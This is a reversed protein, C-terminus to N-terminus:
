PHYMFHFASERGASYRRFDMERVRELYTYMMPFSMLHAGTSLRKANERELAGLLVNVTPDLALVTEITRIPMNTPLEKKKFGLQRLLYGLNAKMTMVETPDFRYGRDGWELMKTLIADMEQNTVVRSLDRWEALLEFGPEVEMDSPAFMSWVGVGFRDLLDRNKPNLITRYRGLKLAGSSAEKYAEYIVETCFMESSDDMKMGFDYPVVHPNVTSHLRSMMAQAASRALNPDRHRYLTVRFNRDKVYEEYTRVTSGVEIHEEMLYVKRSKPDVYVLAAHSFQGDTNGLRAILASTPANGRSVLVDGSRLDRPFVMGQAGPALQLYPAAGALYPAPRNEDYPAPRVGAVATSEELYRLARLLDRIGNVCLAPLAQDGRAAEWERVKRRLTLRALFAERSIRGYNGLLDQQDLDSRSLSYLSAYDDKLRLCDNFALGPIRRHVQGVIESLKLGAASAGSWSFMISVSLVPALLRWAFHM